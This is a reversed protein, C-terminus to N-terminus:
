RGTTVQILGNVYGTGYRTTADSASVFRLLVVDQSRLTELVGIDSPAENIMVKPLQDDAGAVSVAGRSRLWAPRLRLIAERVSLTEIASLEEQTIVDASRRPADGGATASGAAGACGSSVAFLTMAFLVAARKRIM